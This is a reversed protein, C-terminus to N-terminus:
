VHPRIRAVLKPCDRKRETKFSSSEKSCASGCRMPPPIIKYFEQFEKTAAV